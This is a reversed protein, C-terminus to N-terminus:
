LRGVLSGPDDVVADAGGARLRDDGFGGCRVAITRVGVRRAAEADWPSDGVLTADAPEVGLDACTSLLLDPAPKSSNVDDADASPLDTRGLGALLAERVEAEASTAIQFAVERRELDDLLETAGRTARLQDARDLFRRRHDDSIDDADDVHRGLVWPVLRSGGMGIGAHIRWMPVDYGRAAFADSWAVVHLYVSDVLTGDLDLLVGPRYADLDM